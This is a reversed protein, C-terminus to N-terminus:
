SVEEFKKIDVGDPATYPTVLLLGGSVVGIVVIKEGTKIDRGARTTANMECLRDQVIVNVKGIGNDPITLYVEGDKGVANEHRINGSHQMRLILRVSWAVFYMAAFGAAFALFISLPPPAGQDIAFIGTWGGVSFFAILGRLTFLRLTSVVNGDDSDNDSDTSTDTDITTGTGTVAGTGTSSDAGTGIGSGSGGSEEVLEILDPEGGDIGPIDNFLGQIDASPESGFDLHGGDFDLGDSDSSFDLNSSGLDVDDVDVDLDLGNAGIDLDDADFDLDLDDTDFADDAGNENSLGLLLLVFQFILILTAPSAVTLFIQQLGTLRDWWNM